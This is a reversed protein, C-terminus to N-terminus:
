WWWMSRGADCWRSPPRSGRERITAVLTLGAANCYARVRAEQAALSMGEQAQEETSVRCYSVAEMREEERPVSRITGFRIM